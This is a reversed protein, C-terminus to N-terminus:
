RGGAPVYRAVTGLLKDINLPKNLCEAVHLAAAKRNLDPLASMVVVPIEAIRPDHQQQECFEWGTMIPMGLDLLILQPPKHQRLYTLAELGNTAAVVRYGEDELIEALVNRIPQEDEVILISV